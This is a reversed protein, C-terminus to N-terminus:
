HFSLTKTFLIVLVYRQAVLLVRVTEFALLSVFIIVLFGGVIGSMAFGWPMAFISVGLLANMTNAIVSIHSVKVHDKVLAELDFPTQNDRQENLFSLEEEKCTKATGLTGYNSSIASKM